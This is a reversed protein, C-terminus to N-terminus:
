ANRIGSVLISAAPTAPPHTTMRSFLAEGMVFHSLANISMLWFVFPFMVVMIKQGLVGRPTERAWLGHSQRRLETGAYFSLSTIGIVYVSWMAPRGLEQGLHVYLAHAGGTGWCHLAHLVILALGCIGFASHLWGQDGGPVTAGNKRELSWALRGGLHLIVLLLACGNVLVGVWPTQFLEVREIFTEQGSAAGGMQWAVLLGYAVLGLDAIIAVPQLRFYELLRAVM